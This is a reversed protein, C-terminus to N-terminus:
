LGQMLSHGHQKLWGRRRRYDPLHDAVLDWFDRSHNRHRIHCLEHVVVYEMVNPPAVILLWNLYIDNNVGCSGWRSKQELGHKEAHLRIYRQGEARAREKMWGILASRIRESLDSPAPTPSHVVFGVKDDFEVKIRRISGSKVTLLFHDGKFPIMVGDRYSAPAMKAIGERQRQMKKVAETVWDRQRYVFDHINREAVKAPAVVEIKTATVVIRTNKARNSRRIRYEFPLSKAGNQAFFRKM